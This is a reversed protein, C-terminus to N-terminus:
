EKVNSKYYNEIFVLSDMLNPHCLMISDYTKKDLPSGTLGDLYSRWHIIKKYEQPLISFPKPNDKLKANVQVPKTAPEINIVSSSDLVLAKYVISFSISGTFVIFVILLLVLSKKSLGSTISSMKKAWTDKVTEYYKNSVHLDKQKKFWFRM